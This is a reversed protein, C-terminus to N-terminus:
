RIPAKLFRLHHCVDFNVDKMKALRTKVLSVLSTCHSWADDVVVEPLSTAKEESSSQHHNRVGGWGMRRSESPM